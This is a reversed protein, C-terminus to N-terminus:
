VKRTRAGMNIVCLMYGGKRAKRYLKRLTNRTVLNPGCPSQGNRGSVEYRFLLERVTQRFDHDDQPLHCNRVQLM